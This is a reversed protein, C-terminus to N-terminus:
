PKSHAGNNLPLLSFFQNSRQDILFFISCRAIYIPSPPAVPRRKTLLCSMRVSLSFLIFYVSFVNIIIFYPSTLSISTGEEPKQFWKLNLIAHFSSHFDRAQQLQVLQTVELDCSYVCVYSRPLTWFCLWNKNVELNVNAASFVVASIFVIYRGENVFLQNESGELYRCYQSVNLMATENVCLVLSCYRATIRNKLGHLKFVPSICNLIAIVARFM